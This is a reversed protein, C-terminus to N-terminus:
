SARRRINSRVWGRGGPCSAWGSRPLWTRFRGCVRGTNVGAYNQRTPAGPWRTWVGRRTRCLMGRGSMIWHEPACYRLLARCDTPLGYTNSVCDTIIALIRCSLGAGHLETCHATRSPAIAPPPCATAVECLPGRPAAPARLLRCYGAIVQLLRNRRVLGVARM